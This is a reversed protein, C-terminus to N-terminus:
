ISIQVKMGNKIMGEHVATIQRFRKGGKILYEREKEEFGKMGEIQKDSLSDLNRLEEESADTLEQQM